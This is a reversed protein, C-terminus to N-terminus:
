SAGQLAQDLDLRMSALYSRLNWELRCCGARLELGCELEPQVEASLKVPHGLVRCLTQQIAQLPEPGLAHASLLQVRGNCSTVLQERREGDLAELQRCFTEAVRAELDEGALDALMRRAAELVHEGAQRQLERLVAQQRSRLSEKWANEQETVSRRATDLMQQRTTEVEALARARMADAEVEIEALRRAGAAEQQQARELAERGAQEREELHQARENMVGLLPRYLFRELLLILVIFNVIQAAFTFWDIAM